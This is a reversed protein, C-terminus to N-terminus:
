KSFCPLVVTCGVRFYCDIVVMVGRLLLISDCFTVSECFDTVVLARQLMLNIDGWFM